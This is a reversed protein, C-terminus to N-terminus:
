WGKESTKRHLLWSRVDSIMYLTGSVVALDDPGTMGTLRELGRKWDPETVITLEPKARERMRGALEALRHADLKKRFDPESVILTDVIPLIHWLYDYHNKTSLMGIMFHLKKYSYLRTLAASLAEAGEPNHAGDIILRPQESLQELRGPWAAGEMGARLDDEDVIVAYYQRLVELAMVAVAANDVQHLGNLSLRIAEVDRFPGSFRFTLRGLSADAVDAQFQSGLMYLTSSREAAVGRLLEALAPQRVASVVPVGPKVIGAKELAVQELTDGLIDMHDRGVNTIVSVLPTVVNTCDLRGGLGTEWVVFDPYAYNAFYLLAVLTTVEFMTPSGLEGGALEDAAPRIRNVIDLLTEDPIDRGDCQIRDTYRTLYPSTFSGVSYGCRRLTSTLMACTSGKGNTGAVHIFKLRREPHGFREALEQMRSLGPKIGVPILSNIWNIAEDCSQFPPKGSINVDDHM